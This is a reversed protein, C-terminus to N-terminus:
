NRIFAVVQYHEYLASCVLLVGGFASCLVLRASLKAILHIVIYIIRHIAFRDAHFMELIQYRHNLKRLMHHPQYDILTSYM